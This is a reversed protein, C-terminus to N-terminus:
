WSGTAAGGCGTKLIPSVCTRSFEGTAGRSITFEDGDAAKATVRYTKEAGTAYSLYAHASSEEVPITVEIRHLEPGSVNAYEGNHDTAISEATTEATRALEKAQADMAKGTQGVFDPVAIAVLIGIILIVVLLEVLTFGDSGALRGGLRSSAAVSRPRSNRCFPRPSYSFM